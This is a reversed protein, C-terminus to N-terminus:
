KGLQKEITKLGAEAETCNQQGASVTKGGDTAATEFSGRAADFEQTSHVMARVAVSARHTAAGVRQQDITRCEAAAGIARGYRSAAVQAQTIEVPGNSAVLTAITAAALLPFSM